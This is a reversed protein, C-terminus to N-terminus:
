FNWSLDNIKAAYKCTAMKQTKQEVAHRRPSTGRFRVCPGMDFKANKMDVYGLSEFFILKFSKKYKKEFM